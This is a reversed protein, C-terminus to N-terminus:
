EKQEDDSKKEEYLERLHEDLVYLRAGLEYNILTQLYANVIYTLALVAVVWWWHRTILLIVVAIIGLRVSIFCARLLFLMFCTGPITRLRRHAGFHSTVRLMEDYNIRDGFFSADGRLQKKMALIEHRPIEIDVDLVDAGFPIKGRVHYVRM